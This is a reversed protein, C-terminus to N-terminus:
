GPLEALESKATVRFKLGLLGLKVMRLLSQSQEVLLRPVTSQLRLLGVDGVYKAVTTAAATATGNARSWSSEVERSSKAVGIKVLLSEVASLHASTTGKARTWSSEAEDSSQGLALAFAIKVKPVSAIPESIRGEIVQLIKAAAHPM